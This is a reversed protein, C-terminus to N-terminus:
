TLYTKRENGSTKKRKKKSEIQNGRMKLHTKIINGKKNRKKWEKKIIKFVLGKM